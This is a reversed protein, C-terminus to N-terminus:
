PLIQDLLVAQVAEAEEIIPTHASNEFWFVQKFPADLVAVYDEILEGPTKFDYRGIMYYAPVALTPVETVLDLNRFWGDDQEIPAADYLADDLELKAVDEETYETLMAALQLRIVNWLDLDHMDGYGFTALWGTLVPLQDWPVDPQAQLATLDDIAEQNGLETARDLAATLAIPVSQAVNVPQSVGIYAHLREPHDRAVYSGLIAGWSLGMLYVRDQGFRTRMLDILELADARLQDVTILSPDVDTRYSKGCGRQDWAVVTFYEELGGLAYRSYFISPSGPGGHLFILIPNTTHQGRILIWQREGGLEVEELSAVGDASYIAETYSGDPAANEPGGVFPGSPETGSNNCASTGTILVIATLLLYPLRCGNRVFMTVTRELM